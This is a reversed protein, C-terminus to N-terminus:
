IGDRLKPVLGLRSLYDKRFASPTLNYKSPQGRFIWRGQSKPRMFNEPHIRRLFEDASDFVFIHDNPIKDKLVDTM